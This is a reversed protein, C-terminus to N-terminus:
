PASDEDVPFLSRLEECTARYDIYLQRATQKVIWPEAGQGNASMFAMAMGLFYEPSWPARSDVRSALTAELATKAHSLTTEVGAIQERLKALPDPPPAASAAGVVAGHRYQSEKEAVATSAPAEDSAPKEAPETDPNQKRKAAM